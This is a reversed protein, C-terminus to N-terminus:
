GREPLAIMKAVPPAPRSVLNGAVTPLISAIALRQSVMGSGLEHVHFEELEVRRIIQGGLTQPM